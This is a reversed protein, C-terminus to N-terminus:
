AFFIFITVDKMMNSRLTHVVNPTMDEAGKQCHNDHIADKQSKFM